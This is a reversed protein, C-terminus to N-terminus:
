FGIHCWNFLRIAIVINVMERNTLLREPNASPIGGCGGCLTGVINGLGTLCADLEVTSDVMRIIM